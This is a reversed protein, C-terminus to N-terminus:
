NTVEESDRSQSDTHQVIPFSDLRIERGAVQSEGLEDARISLSTSPLKNYIYEAAHTHRCSRTNSM